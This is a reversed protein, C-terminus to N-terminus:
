AGKLGFVVLLVDGRFCKENSNCRSIHEYGFDFLPPAKITTANQCYLDETPASSLLTADTGSFITTETQNSIAEIDNCYDEECCEKM